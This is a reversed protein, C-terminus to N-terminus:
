TRSWGVRRATTSRHFFANLELGAANVEPSAGLLLGGLGQLTVFVFLLVGAACASAWVQQPAFAGPDRSAFAWMSFAPSAQIGM